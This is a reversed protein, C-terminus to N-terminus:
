KLHSVLERFKLALEREETDLYTFKLESYDINTEIHVTLNKENIEKILNEPLNNVVWNAVNKIRFPSYVYQVKHEEIGNHIIVNEILGKIVM